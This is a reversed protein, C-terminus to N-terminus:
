RRPNNSAIGNKIPKKAKVWAFLWLQPRASAGSGFEPLATRARGRLVALGHGNVDGHGTAWDAQFLNDDGKVNFYGVSFGLRVGPRSISPTTAAALSDYCASPPTCVGGQLLPASAAVKMEMFFSGALGHWYGATLSIVARLLKSGRRGPWVSAAAPSARPRIRRGPVPEGRSFTRATPISCAAKWRPTMAKTSFFGAGRTFRIRAWRSAKYRPTAKFPSYASASFRRRPFHRSEFSSGSGAFPRRRRITGRRPFFRRGIVNQTRRSQAFLATRHRFERVERPPTPLISRSRGSRGVMAIEGDRRLWRALYRSRGGLDKFRSEPLDEPRVRRRRPGLCSTESPCTWREKFERLGAGERLLPIALDAVNTLSQPM